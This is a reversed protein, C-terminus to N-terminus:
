IIASVGIYDMLFDKSSIREESPNGPNVLTALWGIECGSALLMMSVSCYKSQSLEIARGLDRITADPSVLRIDMEIKTFVKPATEARQATLTVSFDTVTKHQKRLIPVVDMAMCAGLAELVIEMPSGASDLGGGALSTDFFTEHGKENTGVLRLAQDLQIRAKM